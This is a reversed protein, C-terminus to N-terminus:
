NFLALWLLALGLIRIGLWNMAYATRNPRKM